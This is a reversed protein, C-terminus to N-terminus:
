VSHQWGDNPDEVDKHEDIIRRVERTLADKDPLFLQYRSVFLKNTIGELPDDSKLIEFYHSWSLLHSVTEGKQFMLYFKRIYLLNSKSFGKGYLITLDESLRNILNSGYEAREAGHQEYEVIYKGINWYTQVLTTNVTAAIKEKAASLLTGIDTVLKKYNNHKEITNM